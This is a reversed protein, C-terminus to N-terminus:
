DLPFVSDVICFGEVVINWGGDIDEGVNEM